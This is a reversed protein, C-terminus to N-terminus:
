NKKSKQEALGIATDRLQRFVPNGNTLEFAKLLLQEQLTMQNVPKQSGVLYNGTKDVWLEQFFKGGEREAVRYYPVISDIDLAALEVLRVPHCIRQPLKHERRFKDNIAEVNARPFAAARDLLTELMAVQKEASKEGTARLVNELTPSEAELSGSCCLQICPEAGPPEGGVAFWLFAGLVSAHIVFSAFFARAM